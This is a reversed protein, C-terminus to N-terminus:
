KQHGGDKHDRVGDGLEIEADRIGGEVEKEVKGAGNGEM